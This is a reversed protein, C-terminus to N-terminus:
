FLRGSEKESYKYHMRQGGVQLSVSMFILCNKFAGQATANVTADSNTPESATACVGAGAAVVAAAPVL